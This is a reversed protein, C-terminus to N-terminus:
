QGEVPWPSGYDRPLMRERNYLQQHWYPYPLPRASVEDLRRVEGQELQWSAAALNDDLQELTRAGIIVSTVGPRHMIYNLAVQAVSVGRGDAIGRLVDVIALASEEDHLGPPAIHERRTGEVDQSGRGHKGSLLGGALPSWVLVALGEQQCLPLLEWEIDRAILSYYAQLSVFRPLRRADSTALAKMLQSGAYNSCGVYRVKGARVLDGLAELTEEISTLEDVSHLQYLDLYDTGLRRLSAECARHIHHRSSGAANADSGVRFNCKSAILIEERKGVIAQGLVEESAGLSYVDATDFLNVGADVCRAIVERAGTVQTSGVAAFRGRGGFTMTGFSLASVKLGTQGLVRTQM